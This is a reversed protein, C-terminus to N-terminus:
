RAELGAFHHVRLTPGAPAFGISRYLRHAVWNDEVVNLHCDPYGAECLALLSEMVLQRGLGTGRQGADTVIHAILPAGHYETVAIAARITQGEFVCMSAGPILPGLDGALSEQWVRLDGARGAEDSLAALQDSTDASVELPALRNEIPLPQRRVRLMEEDLPLRMPVVRQLPTAGATALEHEWSIPALAVIHTAGHEATLRRCVALLSSTLEPDQRRPLFENLIWVGQRDRTATCTFATDATRRALVRWSTGWSPQFEISLGAARRPPAPRVADTVKM